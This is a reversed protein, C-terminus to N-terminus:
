KGYSNLFEGVEIRWKLPDKGLFSQHSANPYIVLKKDRSAIAAYIKATEDKLVFYDLDGWQMLVPCNIKKVYNTPSHGFGNFGNEIGSWFTTLFAFPQPPFGILRAKGKMYTQFSLFPMDLIIGSVPLQYEAMAKTVVVAGLSYGYLFINKDSTNIVYDYALKVEEPEKMGITTKNGSSNGHGRFDVLMVNYHWYRFEYAEHLMQCKNATIGHFFIVTGKSFSDAKSYWADILIGNTTILKITDFPFAPTENIVSRPQKPGTFLRWTKAFINPAPKYVRLSPDTYFHTLRYAYFAASINILVFQILLVWLIWRIISPIKRKTRQKEM